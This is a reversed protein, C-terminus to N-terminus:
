MNALSNFGMEPLKSKPEISHFMNTPQNICRFVHHAFSQGNQSEVVLIVALPLRASSNLQPKFPVTMSSVCLVAMVHWPFRIKLLIIIIILKSTLKQSRRVTIDDGTM